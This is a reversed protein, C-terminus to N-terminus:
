QIKLDSKIENVARIGYIDRVQHMRLAGSLVTAGMADKMARYLDAFRIEWRDGCELMKGVAWKIVDPPIATSTATTKADTIGNDNDNDDQLDNQSQQVDKDKQSLEADEFLTCIGATDRAMGEIVTLDGYKSEANMRIASQFESLKLMKAVEHMADDSTRQATDRVNGIRAYIDDIKKFTDAAEKGRRQIEGAVGAMEVGLRSTDEQIKSKLAAVESQVTKMSQGIPSIEGAKQALLRVEEALSKLEATYADDNDDDDGDKGKQYKSQQENVSSIMEGIQRKCEELDAGMGQIKVTGAMISGLADEIDGVRGATDTLSEVKQTVKEMEARLMGAVSGPRAVDTIKEIESRLGDIETDTRAASASRAAVIKVQKQMQGISQSLGAISESNAVITARVGEIKEYTKNKEDISKKQEEQQRQLTSKQVTATAAAIGAIKKQIIQVQKELGTIADSKDSIEDLGSFLGQTEKKLGSIQRSQKQIQLLVAALSETIGGIQSFGGQNKELMAAIARIEGRLERNSRAVSDVKSSLDPVVRGQQQEKAAATKRTSTTSKGAAPNTKKKSQVSKSNNSSRGASNGSAMGRSQAKINKKKEMSGHHKRNAAAKTTTTTTIRASKTSTGTGRQQKTRSPPSSPTMHLIQMVANFIGRITHPAMHMIQLHTTIGHPWSMYGHPWASYRKFRLHNQVRIKQM